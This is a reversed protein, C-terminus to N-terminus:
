APWGRGWPKGGNKLSFGQPCPEILAHDNERTCPKHAKYLRGPLVVSVTENQQAQM